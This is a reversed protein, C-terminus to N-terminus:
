TEDREETGSTLLYHRDTELKCPPLNYGHCVKTIYYIDALLLLITIFQCFTLCIPFVKLNLFLNM